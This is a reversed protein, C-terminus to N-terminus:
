EKGNGCEFLVSDLILPTCGGDGYRRVTFEDGHASKIADNADPVNLQPSEHRLKLSVYVAYVADRERLTPPLEDAATKIVSHFSPIHGRKQMMVLM